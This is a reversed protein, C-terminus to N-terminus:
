DDLEEHLDYALGEDKYHLPKDPEAKTNMNTYVVSHFVLILVSGVFPLVWILVAQLIRQSGELHPSRLIVFTAIASLLLYAAIAAEIM